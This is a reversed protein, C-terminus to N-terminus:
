PRHTVHYHFHCYSGNEAKGACFMFPGDGVPYRCTDWAMDSFPLTGYPMATPEPPTSIPLNLNVIPRVQRVWQNAPRRATPNERAIGDRSMKARLSGATIGLQCAIVESRETGLAWMEQARRLM